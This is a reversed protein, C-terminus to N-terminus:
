PKPLKLIDLKSALATIPLDVGLEKGLDLAMGLKRYINVIPSKGTSPHIQTTLGALHEWHELVWSNAASMKMYELLRKLNIGAAIGLTLGEGAAFMNSMVIVESLLKATQGAGVPGMHLVAKGLVGLIPSCQTLLREEGGVMILVTGNECESPIGSVPADLMGIGRESAKDGIRTCLGRTITSMVIITSGAKLEEWIGNKGWIVEETQADDQVMTIIVDSARAVDKCSTVATAGAAKLEEVPETRKHGCVTVHYGARVLRKALPKGMNGLGIFGIREPM